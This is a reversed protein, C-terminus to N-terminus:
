GNKIFPNYFVTTRDSVDGSQAVGKSWHIGDPSYKLVIQWRKDTNRLEVNFFKWRKSPDKEERDLWVTAADRNCTDVINTGPVVDQTVKKWYKGDLSEAYCTYFTQKEDKHISGAGALYWMKFKCDKDDFWIGDSFPAAYPAGEITNEWEESPELVPNNEYFSAYSICHIFKDKFDFFQRCFTTTRYKCFNSRTEKRFLSSADGGEEYPNRIHSAM